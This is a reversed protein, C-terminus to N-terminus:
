LLPPDLFKEVLPEVILNPNEFSSGSNNTTKLAPNWM